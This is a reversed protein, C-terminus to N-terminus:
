RARHLRRELISVLLAEDRAVLKKALEDLAGLVEGLLAVRDDM